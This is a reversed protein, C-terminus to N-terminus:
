FFVYNAFLNSNIWEVYRGYLIYAATENYFDKESGLYGKQVLDILNYLEQHSNSMLTGTMGVVLPRHYSKLTRLHKSVKTLKNQLDCHFDNLFSFYYWYLCRKLCCRVRFKHFEDIIVLKWKIENLQQFTDEKQFLSDPVILLEARGDRLKELQRDRSSTYFVAVSFHSWFEFEAKWSLSFLSLISTLFCCCLSDKYLPIAKSKM